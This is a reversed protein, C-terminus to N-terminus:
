RTIGFSCPTLNCLASEDYDKLARSVTTRSVGFYEVVEVMTYHVNHSRVGHMRSGMCADLLISHKSPKERRRCSADMCDIEPFRVAFTRVVIVFRETSASWGASLGHTAQSSRCVPNPTRMWGAPVRVKM